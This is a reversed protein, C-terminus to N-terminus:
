TCSYCTARQAAEGEEEDGNEDRHRGDGRRTAGQARAEEKGLEM